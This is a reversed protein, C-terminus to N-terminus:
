SKDKEWLAKLVNGPKLPLERIRVGVADYVANAIAALPPVLCVEGVGRIGFPHGPNPVEVLVTEIMPMDLSTPMRYDLLTANAMRGDDTYYYEENIAWGAGQVAAGQLQGEVYDPHIATGVDQITTYRAIDVKGTEPDVDVDVIHTAFANGVGRPSVSASSSIPGGTEMQRGSIQKFTLKQEPSGQRSFTGDEFEVEEASCEWIKAAREKMQKLIDHAADYAALGTAFATRSGGTTGTFGVSNTDGVVPFVDESKIGLVEAAQMSIAPRSGGIDVSGEILTITGDPNLALNCSSPGGGNFWFGSAVGRGRVKGGKESKYHDSNKAAELTEINGVKLFTVGSAQRDGESSANKIRFEMPEMGLMECIEDVVCESAFTAQPAGPARYAAVKPKNVVVDHADILLNETKYMSFMCMAGANVPSGPFAGAEMALKAQVATITGDNKVGMKVKAYSGAGPGTSELVEARNMTMKVPRGTMRSITAAVPEFYFTTKGGFGGGIEMPIVKVQSIPVGLLAAINPRIGFHGQTSTWITIEDDRSWLATVSQPEIYGQHVTPTNFEREVVIDAEKFGAEIDGLVFQTHTAVNSVKGTDKGLSVTTMEEHLIPAGDAMGQPASLVPQLVEYEIDILDLAEDATHASEAAVAVIAHGKYLAKDQALINMTLFKLNVMPGEGLSVMEDPAQPLDKATIIKVVGELKEAKSTDISKIRAHAHPSRLIRGHLMNVMHVDAGYKARGTVKDVGDHRVPRTGIVKYNNSSKSTTAM